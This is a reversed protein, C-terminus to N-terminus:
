TFNNPSLIPTGVDCLPERDVFVAKIPLFFAWGIDGGFYWTGSQWPIRCSYTVDTALWEIKMLHGYTFNDPSLIPTGVDCFPKGTVFIAQIPWFFAWGFDGGFYRM